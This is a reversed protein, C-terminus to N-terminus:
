DETMAVSVGKGAALGDAKVVIPAGQERIYDVAQDHDSFSRYAATPINYRAMLDKSFRKSGEIQAAAKNPGFIELGSSQFLDVIGMTLPVEPGVVTLDIKEALAFDLLTDIEDAGIHVCEALEAIGPNGPACYIQQVLPSQAIKWVLTHERGGGGIVLIKM